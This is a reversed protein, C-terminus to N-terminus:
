LPFVPLPPRKAKGVMEMRFVTLLDSSVNNLLITKSFATFIDGSHKFNIELMKICGVLKEVNIYIRQSCTAQM